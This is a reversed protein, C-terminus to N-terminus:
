GSIIMKIIDLCVRKTKTPVNRVEKFFNIVSSLKINRIQMVNEIHLNQCLRVLVDVFDKKEELTMKDLYEKIHGELKQSKKSLSGLVLKGGFCNWNFGDHTLIGLGKAKVVQYDRHGFIMGFFSSEPVFMKLKHQMELYEPSELVEELFGPGDFNYVNVVRKKISNKAKMYSYMAINGGKSHGGIYIKRDLINITNDLYEKGIRQSEIPSMYMLELDEKWGVISSDTGSYAVYTIGNNFRVTMAEFQKVSDKAEVYNYLRAENYRKSDKLYKILYYCNPFLYDENKFDKESYKKLFLECIEKITKYGRKSNNAIGDLKAYVLESLVLSDVDNFALDNFSTNGYYTLYTFLNDM